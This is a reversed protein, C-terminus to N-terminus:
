VDMRRYNCCVFRKEIWKFQHINHQKLENHPVKAVANVDHM